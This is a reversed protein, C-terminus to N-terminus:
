GRMAQEDLKYKAEQRAYPRLSNTTVIRLSWRGAENHSTRYIEENDLRIFEKCEALTGVFAFLIAGIMKTMLGATPIAIMVLLLGLAAWETTGTTTPEVFRNQTLLQMVLGSMAMAGGALVLATIDHANIM